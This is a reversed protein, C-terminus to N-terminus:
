WTKQAKVFVLLLNSATMFPYPRKHFFLTLSYWNLRMRINSLQENQNLHMIYQERIHVCLLVILTSLTVDLWINLLSSFYKKILKIIKCAAKVNVQSKYGPSHLSNAFATPTLKNFIYIHNLWWSPLTKM